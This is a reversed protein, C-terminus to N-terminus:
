TMDFGLTAVFDAVPKQREKYQKLLRTALEVVDQDVVGWDLENNKYRYPGIPNHSINNRLEQLESFNAKLEEWLNSDLQKLISMKARMSLAEGGVVTEFKEWQEPIFKDLLLLKISQNAYFEIYSFQKVFEDAGIESRDGSFHPVRLAKGDFSELKQAEGKKGVRRFLFPTLPELVVLFSYNIQENFSYGTITTKQSAVLKSM